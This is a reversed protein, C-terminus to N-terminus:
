RRRFVGVMTVPRQVLKEFEGGIFGRIAPLHKLADPLTEAHQRFEMGRRRCDPQRGPSYRVTILDLTILVM